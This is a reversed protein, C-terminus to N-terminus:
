PHFKAAPLRAIDISRGNGDIRVIIGDDAVTMELSGVEDGSANLISVLILKGDSAFRYFGRLFEGSDVNLVVVPTTVMRDTPPASSMAVHMMWIPSPGDFITEPPIAITSTQIAGADDKSDVTMMNGAVSAKFGSEPTGEARSMFEISDLQLEVSHIRLEYRLSRDAREGVATMAIEANGYGTYTWEGEEVVRGSEAVTFRGQMSTAFIDNIM